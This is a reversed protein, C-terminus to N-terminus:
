DAPSIVLHKWFGDGRSFTKIGETNQLALHVIRRDHPNMPALTISEKTKKVKEAMREAMTALGEQRKQRYGEMDLILRGGEPHRRRFIRNAIYQLAELTRGERGIILASEPSSINLLYGELSEQVEVTAKTKMLSLLTEVMQQLESVAVAEKSTVRVKSGKAAILGFLKRNGQSLVEIYVQEKKLGLISLANAVAEEVTKGEAEVSPM